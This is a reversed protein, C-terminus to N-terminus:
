SEPAQRVDDVSAAAVSSHVRRPLNEALDPLQEAIPSRADM